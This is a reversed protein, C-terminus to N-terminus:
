TTELSLSLDSRAEAQATRARAAGDGPLVVLAVLLGLGFIAAAWEFATTYGHIAAADAIGAVRAHTSVYGAAASAFITSLLATGISGGV